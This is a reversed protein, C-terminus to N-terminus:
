GRSPILRQMVLPMAKTVTVRNMKLISAISEHTIASIDVGRRSLETLLWAIRENSGLSQMNAAYELSNMYQRAMHEIVGLAIEPEEAALRRMEAVPVLCGETDKAVYGWHNKNRAYCREEGGEELSVVGVLHGPEIFMIGMDKSDQATCGLVLGREVILINSKLDVVPIKRGAEASWPHGSDCLKECVEDDLRNCFSNECQRCMVM